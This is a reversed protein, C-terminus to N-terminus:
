LCIFLAFLRSVQSSARNIESNNGGNYSSSSCCSCKLKSDVSLYIATLLKLATVTFLYLWTTNVSVVYSTIYIIYSDDVTIVYTRVYRVSIGDTMACAVYHSTAVAPQHDCLQPSNFTLLIVNHM